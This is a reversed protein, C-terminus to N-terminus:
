CTNELRLVSFNIATIIASLHNTHAMHWDRNLTNKYSYSTSVRLSILHSLQQLSLSM